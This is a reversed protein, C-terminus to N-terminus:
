QQARVAVACPHFDGGGVRLDSKQQFRPYRHAIGYKWARCWPTFFLQRQHKSVSDHARDGHCGFTGDIRRKGASDALLDPKCDYRYVPFAALLPQIPRQVAVVRGGAVSRPKHQPVQVGIRVASRVETFPQQCRRRSPHREADGHVLNLGPEDSILARESAVKADGRPADGAIRLRNAMWLVVQDPHYSVRPRSPTPEPFEPRHKGSIRAPEDHALEAGDVDLDLHQTRYSPGDLLMLRGRELIRDVIAEALDADHLVAGWATLPSKNTTFLMSRGRLHRENVVHFLVNAADPGYSLYGVEDVVLVHPHLYGTLVAQLKGQRSAASLEEILAAATVFRATFGQQIARYAIAIALHTKGRGSKGKLILSLGGTVLEPALYSGLLPLRLTSQLSFDFEEITKLFPFRAQRVARQVRTHQRHAIEETVLVGLFERCSWGHTEARQLLERWHRRTSALNLRRLLPDFEVTAADFPLSATTHTSM